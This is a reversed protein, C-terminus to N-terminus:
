RATATWHRRVATEAGPPGWTLTEDAVFTQFDPSFTGSIEAERFQCIFSAYAPGQNYKATFSTGTLTGSYPVDDTPWNRTDEDLWIASADIAVHWEVSSRKEGVETGWGCGSSGSRAIVTADALWNVTPGNSGGVASSAQTQEGNSQASPSTTTGRCGVIFVAFLATPVIGRRFM